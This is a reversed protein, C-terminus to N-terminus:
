EIPVARLRDRHSRGLFANAALLLLLVYYLTV